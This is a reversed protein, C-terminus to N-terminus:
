PAPTRRAYWVVPAALLLTIAGAVLSSLLSDGYVTTAAVATTVILFAWVLVVPRLWPKRLLVAVLAVAGMVGYATATVGVLREGFSTTDTIDSMNSLGLYVSAALLLSVVITAILGRAPRM